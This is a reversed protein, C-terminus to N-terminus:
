FPMNYAKFVKNFKKCSEIVELAIEKAQEDSVKQRNDHLSSGGNFNQGRPSKVRRINRKPAKIQSSSNSSKNRTVSNAFVEPRLAIMALQNLQGSLWEAFQLWLVALPDRNENQMLAWLAVHSLFLSRNIVIAM